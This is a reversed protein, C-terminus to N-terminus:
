ISFHYIKIQDFKSDSIIDALLTNNDEYFYIISRSEPRDQKSLFAIKNLDQDDLILQSNLYQNLEVESDIKNEIDAVNMFYSVLAREYKEREIPDLSYRIFKRSTSLELGRKNVRIVEALDSTQLDIYSEEAPFRKKLSFLHKAKHMKSLTEFGEIREKQLVFKVMALKDKFGMMDSISIWQHREAARVRSSYSRGYIM